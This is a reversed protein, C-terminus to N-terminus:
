TKLCASNQAAPAKGSEKQIKDLIWQPIPLNNDVAYRALEDLLYDAVENTKKQIEDVMASTKKVVTESFEEYNMKGPAQTKETESESIKEREM